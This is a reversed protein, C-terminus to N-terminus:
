RVGGRSGLVTVDTARVGADLLLGSPPSCRSRIVKKKTSPVSNYIKADAGRKLVENGSVGCRNNEGHHM